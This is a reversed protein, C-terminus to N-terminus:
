TRASPQAHLNRMGDMHLSWATRPKRPGRRLQSRSRASRVQRWIMECTSKDVVGRLDSADGDPPKEGRRTVLRATLDACRVISSQAFRHDGQGTPAAM